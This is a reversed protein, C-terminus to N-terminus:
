GNIITRAAPIRNVIAVAALAIAATTLITKISPM